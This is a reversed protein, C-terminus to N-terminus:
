QYKEAPACGISSGSLFLESDGEIALNVIVAFEAGAEFLFAM